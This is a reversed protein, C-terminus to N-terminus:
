PTAPRSWAAKGTPGIGPAEAATQRYGPVLPDSTRIAIVLVLVGGVVAALPPLMLGWVWPQRYWPAASM